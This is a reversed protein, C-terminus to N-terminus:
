DEQWEASLRGGLLGRLQKKAAHLRWKITGTPRQMSSAIADESLGVYYRLVIARRQEASLQMLAERVTDRLEAAELLADPAPLDDPILEWFSQGDDGAELHVDRGLRQVAQLADNAVIRLFWPAFPRTDDYQAIRRFVKIFASQVVDEALARDQTILYATRTAKVQYRQVLAELGQIDGAQLRRIADQENQDNM